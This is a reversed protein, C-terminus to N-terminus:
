SIIKLQQFQKPLFETYIPIKFSSENILGKVRLDFTYDEESDVM